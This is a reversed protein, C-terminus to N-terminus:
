LGLNDLSAAIDEPEESVENHNGGSSLIPAQGIRRELEKVAQYVDGLSVDHALYSSLAERIAKSKGRKPLGDIWRALAPYEADDFTFTETRKTM